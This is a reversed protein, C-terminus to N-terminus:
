RLGGLNQGTGEGYEPNYDFSLAEMFNHRAMTDLEECLGALPLAPRNTMYAYQSILSKKFITRQPLSHSKM